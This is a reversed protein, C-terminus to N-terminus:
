SPTCTMAARRTLLAQIEDEYADTEDQDPQSPFVYAVDYSAAPGTGLTGPRARSRRNAEPMGLVLLILHSGDPPVRHLLCTTLLGSPTGSSM